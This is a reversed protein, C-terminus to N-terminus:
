RSRYSFHQAVIRWSTGRPALVFTLVGSEKVATAGSSTEIEAAAHVVMTQGYDYSTMESLRVHVEAARELQQRLMPEVNSWGNTRQGQAVVILRQDNAYLQALGDVSRVEMAQRWQELTALAAAESPVAGSTPAVTSATSAHPCGASAVCLASGAVLRTVLYITRLGRM